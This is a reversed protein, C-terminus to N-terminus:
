KAVPVSLLRGGFLKKVQDDLGDDTIVLNVEDIGCIPALARHQFKSADAVLAVERAAAIMARKVDVEALSTNTVGFDSHVADAGLFLRDAHMERLEGVARSGLLTYQGERLIGGIVVLQDRPYEALCMAIRLDNTIVGVDRRQQLAVAVEFTTSGADLIVTEGQGVLGAAARGIAEKQRVAGDRRAAYATNGSSSAALAGGRTRRLLGLGELEYLDRRVTSRDAGLTRSLAAIGIFGDRRAQEVIRSQRESRLV